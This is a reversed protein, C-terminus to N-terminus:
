RRWSPLNSFFTKHRWIEFNQLSCTYFNPMTNNRNSLNILSWLSLTQCSSNHKPGGLKIILHIYSDLSFVFQLCLQILKGRGIVYCHALLVDSVCIVIWSLCWCCIVNKKCIFYCSVCVENILISRSVIIYCIDVATGKYVRSECTFCKVEM